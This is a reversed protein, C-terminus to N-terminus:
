SWNETDIREPRVPAPPELIDKGLSRCIGRLLGKFIYGHLPTVAWWYLLGFLGRPWFRATLQLVCRNAEPEELHFELLAKGPLKMEAVLQLYRPKEVQFVRWFDLADGPSIELPCRRGRQLGIGGVLRDLFGRLQWLWNAHYWGTTGGICTVAPWTEEASAALTIRWEQRYETGGAWSPDGAMPWASRSLHGADSWSSEVQLHQTHDLALRIAERCSILPQPLMQRLRFDKCIVENRLGEALPRALAAPVPTILSIWYSSLGPSLFPLPVILRKRLGAVEAYLDMLRRYTVVEPQGIDFTEGLVPDSELCGLLYHLVNEVAIPQCPTRVWRPTTMIPLREVLYRLIEFSASGAGIIVAARLITVPIASQRLIKGVEARSRLHESLDASDEGLGGLYIIRELGAKTASTAFNDAAQKDVAAFDAVGPSMSHVLYYAARCGAMTEVLSERDLLDGQCVELAPHEAWPRGSLKAPTRCLARVRYGRTLLRPVLRGGIYGTAGAVFILDQRIANM